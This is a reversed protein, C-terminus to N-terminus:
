QFEGNFRTRSYRQFIGICPSLLREVRSNTASPSGPGARRRMGATWLLLSLVYAAGKWESLLSQSGIGLAWLWSAASASLTEVFFGLVVIGTAGSCQFGVAEGFWFCSSVALVWAAAIAQDVHAVVYVVRAYAPIPARFSSFLAAALFGISILPVSVRIICALVHSASTVKRGIEVMVWIETLEAMFSIIWFSWFYVAPQRWVLVDALAILDRVSLLCLLTFLSPWSVWSPRRAMQILLASQLAFEAIWIAWSITTLQPM